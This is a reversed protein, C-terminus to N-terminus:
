FFLLFTFFFFIIEKDSLPIILNIKFTFSWNFSTTHAKEAYCKKDAFRRM